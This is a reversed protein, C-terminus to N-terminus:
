FPPPTDGEAAPAAPKEYPILKVVNMSVLRMGVVPKNKYSTNYVDVVVSIESDNGIATGEDVGTVTPPDLKEPGKGFDAYEYRRLKLVGDKLKARSGLANFVKVSADDLKIGLSWNGGKTEHEYERDIQGAWPRAYM